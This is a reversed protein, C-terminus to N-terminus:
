SSKEVPNKETQEWTKGSIQSGRRFKKLYASLMHSVLGRAASWVVAYDFILPSFNGKSDVLHNECVNVRPILLPDCDRTWVGPEQNLFAFKYG